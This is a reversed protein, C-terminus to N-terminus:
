MYSPVLWVLPPRIRQLAISSYKFFRRDELDFAVLNHDAVNPDDELWGKWFYEAFYISNKKCEPFDEASLSIACNSGLFLLRDNLSTIEIWTKRSPVFRCVSCSASIYPNPESGLRDQFWLLIQLLDGSSEVLYRKKIFWNGYPRPLDVSFGKLPPAAVTPQRLSLDHVDWAEISGHADLVLLSGNFYIIDECYKMSNTRTRDLQTWSDSGAKCFVLGSFGAAIVMYNNDVLPDATVIAKSIFAVRLRGPSRSCERDLGYRRIKYHDIEGSSESRIVGLIGPFTETPPLHIIAGSFPNMLLVRCFRDVITLWGFSSGVCRSHRIEKPLKIQYVKKDLLNFFKRTEKGEQGVKAPLMLWPLQPLPPYSKDPAVSYWSHCVAGFHINDVLHLRRRVSGLLDKPLESWNVLAM